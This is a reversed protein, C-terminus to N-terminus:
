AARRTPTGASGLDGGCRNCWWRETALDVDLYETISRKTEVRGGVDPDRHRIPRIFMGHGAPDPLHQRCVRHPCSGCSSVGTRVRERSTFPSPPGGALCCSRAGAARRRTPNSRCRGRGGPAGAEDRRLHRLRCWSGPGPRPPPEAVREGPEALPVDEVLTEGAETLLSAEIRAASPSSARAASIGDRRPWCLTSPRGRERDGDLQARAEYRHRVDFTSVGFASFVPSLSPPVDQADPESAVSPLLIGRRRRVRHPCAPRPRRGTRHAESPDRGPVSGGRGGRARGRGQDGPRSRRGRGWAPGRHGGRPGGEGSRSGAQPPRRPLPGSGPIRPGAMRRDAHRRPGWPRLMGPRARGGRERVSWWSARMCRASPDAAWPSRTSSSRRSLLTWAESTSGAVGSPAPESSSASIPAPAESTPPSPPTSVTCLRWCPAPTSARRPAPSIRPVARPDERGSEVTGDATVVLLPRGFGSRRLDDEAKYLSTALRKHMYANVVVAATRVADDAGLSVHTSLLTPVAGLYHRPYGENVTRLVAPENAPNLRQEAPQGGADPSRAGAPRACRPEAGGPDPEREIESLETVREDIGAVM